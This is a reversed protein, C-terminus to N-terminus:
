IMGFKHLKRKAKVYAAHAKHPDRFYGLYHAQGDVTISSRFGPRRHSAYVGLLGTSNRSHARRQNHENVGGETCPRLNHIRHNTPDGDAHDIEVMPLYGYVYLFIWRHLYMRHRNLKLMTRGDKRTSGARRGNKRWTVEGTAPSYHIQRVVEAAPVTCMNRPKM